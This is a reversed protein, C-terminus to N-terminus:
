VIRGAPVAFFWERAKDELSFPFAKMKVLQMDAGRPCMIDCCYEFQQLHRNPDEGSLGHFKPLQHFFGGRLEFDATKGTEVALYTVNAPRVGTGNVQGNEERLSTM